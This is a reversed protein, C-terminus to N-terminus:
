YSKQLFVNKASEVCVAQMWGDKEPELQCVEFDAFIIPFEYYRSDSKKWRRHDAEYARELNAPLEPTEDDAITRPPFHSPGNYVGLIRHTGIKWIRYTPNGNYASLRGHTWYCTATNEPTKCPIKRNGAVAGARQRAQNPLRKAAAGSPQSQSRGPISLTPLGALAILSLVWSVLAIKMFLIYCPEYMVLTM